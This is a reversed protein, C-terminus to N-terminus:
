VCQFVINIKRADFASTTLRRTEAVAAPVSRLTSTYKDKALVPPTRRVDNKVDGKPTGIGTGTM